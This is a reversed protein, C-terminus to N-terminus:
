CPSTKCLYPGPSQNTSIVGNRVYGQHGRYSFAVITTHPLAEWAIGMAEAEMVLLRLQPSTELDQKIGDPTERDFFLTPLVVPASM